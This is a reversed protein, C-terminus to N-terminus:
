KPYSNVYPLARDNVSSLQEDRISQVDGRIKEIQQAVERAGSIGSATLIQEATVLWSEFYQADVDENCLGTSSSQSKELEKVFCEHFSTWDM